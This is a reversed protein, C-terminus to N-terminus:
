STRTIVVYDLLPELVALIAEADKEQLIGVLGITRTFRFNERVTGVVAEAGAPNHAADLLVTPSQRVVEARGPSTVTALAATLEERDAGPGGGGPPAEAAPVALLPNRAQHEGVLSPFAEAYRGAIGQLTPMQGGVGPTRAILRDARGRLRG